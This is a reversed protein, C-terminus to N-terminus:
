DNARCGTKFEVLMTGPDTIEGRVLVFDGADYYFGTPIGDGPQLSSGKFRENITRLTQAETGNLGTVNITRVASTGDRM